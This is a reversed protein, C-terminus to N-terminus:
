SSKPGGNHNMSMSDPHYREGAVAKVDFIEELAQKDQPTLKIHAAAINEELYKIRRTGPIPFVDDGREVLALNKDLNEGSFRPQGSLRWDDKHFDAASKYQGTLLGRGLPSYPVIGIGLERCTPIVAAEADRTWLSWELQCASIPHVAHARRIEDASAESIGLYKVKGEEVLEKLAHWTTEIPISRDVRHQYYLDIQRVNLRKLSGEVAQRVHERSGDISMGEAGFKIAFKTALCTLEEGAIAKGVLEENIYPGYMDSTDLHSVGLQIARRIVKISESDASKGDPSQKDLYFGSLGMCGYGQHVIDPRAQRSTEKPLGQTASM